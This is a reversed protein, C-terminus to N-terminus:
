CKSGKDEHEKKESAQFMMDYASPCADCISGDPLRGYGGSCTNMGCKGCIVIEGCQECQGWRHEYKNESMNRILTVFYFLIVHDNAKILVAKLLCHSKKIKM